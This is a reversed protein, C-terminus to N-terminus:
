KRFFGRGPCFFDRYCKGMKSFRSKRTQTETANHRVLFTTGVPVGLALSLGEAFVESQNFGRLVLKNLHLSCSHYLWAITSCYKRDFIFRINKGFFVGVDRRGKYKLQHILKQVKIEKILTFSLVPLSLGQEAGSYAILKTKLLITFIQRQLHLFCFTCIIEEHEYLSRGCTACIKPFILFLLDSIPNMLIINIIV